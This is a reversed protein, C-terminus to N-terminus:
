WPTLIQNLSTSKDNLSYYNSILSLPTLTLSPQDATSLDLSHSPSNLSRSFPLLPHSLLWLVWLCRHPLAVHSVVQLAFLPLGDTKRQRASFTKPEVRGVQCMIGLATM